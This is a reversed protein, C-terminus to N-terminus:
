LPLATPKFFRQWRTVEKTKVFEIGPLNILNAHAIKNLLIRVM